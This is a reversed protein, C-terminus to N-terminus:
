VIRWVEEVLMEDPLNDVHNVIKGDKTIIVNFGCFEMQYSGCISEYLTVKPQSEHAKLICDNFYLNSEM